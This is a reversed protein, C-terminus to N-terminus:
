NRCRLKRGNSASCSLSTTFSRTGIQLNASV